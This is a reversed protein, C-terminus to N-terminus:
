VNFLHSSLLSAVFSVMLDSVKQWIFPDQVVLRRESWNSPQIKDGKGMNMEQKIREEKKGKIKNELTSRQCIGGNLISVIQTSYNFREGTDGRGKGENGNGGVKVNQSSTPITSPTRSFFSFFGRFADAATLGKVAEWNEDPESNFDVHTPIGQDKGWGVWVVDPDTTNWPYSPIPVKIHAQLNPLVGRHQLYAIAMLTLCYSSMTAPGLSGSPDNIEKSSAWLKLGHILPRLIFPSIECYAQILRSNYWGGLDNVNIDCKFEGHTFKIIPCTAFRIIEIDTMGNASLKRSLKTLDYIDPLDPILPIRTKRSTSKAPKEPDPPSRWLSPITSVRIVLDLDGSMGTQGGWSVSGYVDVEFRKEGFKDNVIGELKKLLGLVRETKGIDSSDRWSLLLSSQLPDDTQTMQIPLKSRPSSHIERQFASSIKNRPFPQDGQPLEWSSKHTGHVSTSTSQSPTPNFM